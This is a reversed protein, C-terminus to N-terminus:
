QLVRANIEAYWIFECVCEDVTLNLFEEEHDEASCMSRRQSMKLWGKWVSDVHQLQEAEEEEEEEM